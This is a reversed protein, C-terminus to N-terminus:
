ASKKWSWTRKTELLLGHSALKEDTANSSKISTEDIVRKLKTWGDPLKALFEKTMNGGHIRKLSGASVTLTYTTGDQAVSGRRIGQKFDVLGGDLAKVHEEAYLAAKEKLDDLASAIKSHYDAVDKLGADLDRILPLAAKFEEMTRVGKELLAAAEKRLQNTKSDKM